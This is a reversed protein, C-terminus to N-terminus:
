SKREPRNSIATTLWHRWRTGFEQVGYGAVKEDLLLRLHLGDSRVSVAALFACVESARGRSSLVEAVPVGAVRVPHAAAHTYSLQTTVSGSFTSDLATVANFPVDAHDIEDYWSTVFDGVAAPASRSGVTDLSVVTNMFCGVVDAHAANRVGGWPYSVSTPGPQGVDRLALHLSFLVYPFLTGRFSRPIAVSPLTDFPVDRTARGTMRPFEGAAALREAWFKTMSGNVAAAEQEKRANIAVQYRALEGDDPGSPSDLQRKILLLSQEDVLAHDFVLVLNDSEPSRILRASFAAGDLATVFEELVEAVRESVANETDAHLEALDCEAPCWQQYATGRSFRIRYSLAPNRLVVSQLVLHVDAASLRAPPARFLLHVMARRGTRQAYMGFDLQASLLPLTDTMRERSKPEPAESRGPRDAPTDNFSPLDFFSLM